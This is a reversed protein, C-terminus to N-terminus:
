LKLKKGLLEVDECEPHTVRGECWNQALRYLLRADEIGMSTEVDREKKYKEIADDYSQENLVNIVGKLQDETIVIKKGM